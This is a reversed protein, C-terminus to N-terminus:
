LRGHYARRGITECENRRLGTGFSRLFGDSDVNEAMAMPLVPFSLSTPDSSLVARSDGLM